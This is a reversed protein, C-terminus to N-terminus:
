PRPRLIFHRGEREPDHYADPDVVSAALERAARSSPRTMLDTGIVLGRYSIDTTASIAMAPDEDDGTYGHFGVDLGLVVRFRADGLYRLELNTLRARDHETMYFSSEVLPDDLSAAGPAVALDAGTACSSDSGISVRLVSGHAM